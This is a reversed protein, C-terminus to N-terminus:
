YKVKKTLEFNGPLHINAAGAAGTSGSSGGGMSPSRKSKNLHSIPTITVGSNGLYQNLFIMFM